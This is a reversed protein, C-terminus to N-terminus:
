GGSLAAVIVIRDTPGVRASLDRVALGNVHILLTPRIRDQEDVIRFRLGPCAGDLSDLIQGVTAGEAQVEARGGTYSFLPSPIRVATM